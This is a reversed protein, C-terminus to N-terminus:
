QGRYYLRCGTPGCAAAWNASVPYSTYNGYGYVGRAPQVTNYGAYAAPLYANYGYAPYGGYSYGGFGFGVPNFSQMGPVPRPNYPVGHFSPAGPQPDLALANGAVLLVIALAGCTALSRVFMKRVTM